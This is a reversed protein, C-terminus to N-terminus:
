RRGQSIIASIVMENEAAHRGFRIGNKSLGFTQDFRTALDSDETTRLYIGAVLLRNVEGFQVIDAQEIVYFADYKYKDDDGFDEVNAVKALAKLVEGGAMFDSYPGPFSIRNLNPPLKDEDHMPAVYTSERNIGVSFSGSIRRSTRDLLFMQIISKAFPVADVQERTWINMGESFRRPLSRALIDYYFERSFRGALIVEVGTPISLGYQGFGLTVLLSFIVSSQSNCVIVRRGKVNSTMELFAKISEAVDQLMEALHPLRLEQWADGINLTILRLVPAYVDWGDLVNYASLLARMVKHKAHSNERSAVPLSLADAGVTGHLYCIANEGPKANPGSRPNFTATERSLSWNGESHKFLFYVVKEPSGNKPNLHWNKLQKYDTVEFTTQAKWAKALDNRLRDWLKDPELSRFRETRALIFDTVLARLREANRAATEFLRGLWRFVGNPTTPLQEIQEPTTEKDVELEAEDLMINLIGRTDDNGTSTEDLM